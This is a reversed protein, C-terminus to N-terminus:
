LGGYALARLKCPFRLHRAQLHCIAQKCLLFPVHSNYLCGLLAKSLGCFISTQSVCSQLEELDLDSSSCNLVWCSLRSRCAAQRPWARGLFVPLCLTQCLEQLPAWPSNVCRHIRVPIGGPSSLGAWRDCCM